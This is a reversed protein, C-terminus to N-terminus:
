GYSDLLITKEFSEVLMQGFFVSTVPLKSDFTLMDEPSVWYCSHFKTHVHLISVFHISYSLPWQKNKIEGNHIM